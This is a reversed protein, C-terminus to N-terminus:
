KSQFEARIFKVVDKIEAESLIKKFAPMGKSPVGETIYKIYKADDM